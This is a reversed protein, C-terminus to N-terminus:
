EGAIPRWSRLDHQPRSRWGSGSRRWGLGYRRPWDHVLVSGPGSSQPLDYRQPLRISASMQQSLRPPKGGARTGKAAQRKRTAVQYPPVHHKAAVEQITMDGRLAELAGKAMSQDTSMRRKAM